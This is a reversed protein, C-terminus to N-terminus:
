WLSFDDPNALMGEARERALDLKDWLFSDPDARDMESLVMPLLRELSIKPTIGNACLAPNGDKPWAQAICLPKQGRPEGITVPFSILIVDM